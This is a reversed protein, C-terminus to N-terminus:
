VFSAINANSAKSHSIFSDLLLFKGEILISRSVGAVRTQHKEIPALRTYTQLTQFKLNRM